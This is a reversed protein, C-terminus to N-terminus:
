SRAWHLLADITADVHPQLRPFAASAVGLPGCALSALLALRVAVPSGTLALEVRSRWQPSMTMGLACALALHTIALSWWRAYDIGIAYLAFPSLAALLMLPILRGQADAGAPTRKIRWVLWFTPLLAGVLLMQQFLRNPDLLLAIARPSEAGAGGYLVKLSGANVWDGHTARLEQLYDATAIHPSGRTVIFAMVALLVLGVALHSPAIVRSGPDRALWYAFVLPMSLLLFAEHIFLGLACAALVALAAGARPLKEISVFAALALLLGLQDFRGLDYFFHQLTAFHTSALVGFLFTGQSRAELWPRWFFYLLAAGLLAAIAISLADLVGRLRAPDIVHSVVEGVLSRKVVGHDYNFAWHTFSWDRLEVNGSLALAGAIGVVFTVLGALAFAKPIDRM